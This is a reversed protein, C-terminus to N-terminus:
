LSIRGTRRRKLEPWVLLAILLMLLGASFVPM